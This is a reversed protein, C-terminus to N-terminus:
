GGYVGRRLVGIYPLNRYRGAYDVGCGVVFVDGGAFGVFDPVFPVARRSPKDLLAAVRVSRPGRAALLEKLRALTRGSDVIDEVVLVDRGAVPVSLDQGLRVQGSSATGAGYSSLSLFDIELPLPLARILDAFFPVCGKLIGVALLPPEGRGSAPYLAAIQEGLARVRAAIQERTFLIERIDPHM